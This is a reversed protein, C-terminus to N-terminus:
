NKPVPLKFSGLPDDSASAPETANVRIEGSASDIYYHNEAENGAAPDANCSFTKDGVTMTLVYGQVEPAESNFRSDLFGNQALQEFSGYEGGNSVAHARQAIAITRLAGIVATEEGRTKSQKLGTTYTQCSVLTLCLLAIIVMVRQDNPQPKNKM